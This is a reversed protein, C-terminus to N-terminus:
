CHAVTRNPSTGCREAMSNSMYNARTKWQDKVSKRFRWEGLRHREDAEREARLLADNQAQLAQGEAFGALRAAEAEIKGQQAVAQAAANAAVTMAAANLATLGGGNHGLGSAEMHRSMSAGRPTFLPVPQYAASSPPAWPLQLLPSPSRALIEAMEVDHEAALPSGHVGILDAVVHEANRSRTAVAQLQQQLSVERETAIRQEESLREQYKIYEKKRATREEDLLKM